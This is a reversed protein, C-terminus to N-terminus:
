AFETSLKWLFVVLLIIFALLIGYVFFDSIEDNTTEWWPLILELFENM